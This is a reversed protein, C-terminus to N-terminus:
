VSEFEIIISVVAWKPGLEVEKAEMRGLYAERPRWIRIPKMKGEIRNRDKSSIRNWDEVSDSEEYRWCTDFFPTLVHGGTEARFTRKAGFSDTVSGGIPQHRVCGLPYQM